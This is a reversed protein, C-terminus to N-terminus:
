EFLDSDIFEAQVLSWFDAALGKTVYSYPLWGYGQEGWRPGWSNRILLAGTDGGIQHNDDYGVTVVAHGGEESDADTPFPIDGTGADLGPISSYVTFGFMAPLEAALHTKVDALIDKGSAGGPDLRYYKIAKYNQAYSFCFPPPEDNFSAIDYQWFQEPPIGFLVMAKMTTRLFAGTDGEFEWGLLKRTVKYLFRRSGDLHKNFARRQYYELLGVGAQATCSGLRSQIEIPSCWKRLDVSSPLTKKVAQLSRSKALITKVEPTRVSYDRFDPLDRLWGLGMNIDRSM